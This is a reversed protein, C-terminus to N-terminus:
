LGLEAATLYLLQVRSGLDNRGPDLNRGSTDVFVFAGPPRRNTVYAAYEPLTVGVRQDGAVIVEGTEDLVRMEWHGAAETGDVEGHMGSENWRFRLTYAVGDLLPTGLTYLPLDSRTPIKISM